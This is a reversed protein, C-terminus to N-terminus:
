QSRKPASASRSAADAQQSQQMQTRQEASMMSGAPATASSNQAGAGKATDAEKDGCGVSLAAIMCLSMLLLSNKIIRM